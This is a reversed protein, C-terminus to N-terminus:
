ETHTHILSFANINRTVAEANRVIVFFYLKIEYIQSQYYHGKSISKVECNEAEAKNVETTTLSM